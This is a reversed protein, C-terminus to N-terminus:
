LIPQHLREVFCLWAQRRREESVAVQQEMRDHLSLRNDVILLAGTPACLTEGVDDAAEEVRAIIERTRDPVRGFRLSAGEELARGYFRLGRGGPNCGAKIVVRFPHWSGGDSYGFAEGSASLDAVLRKGESTRCLRALIAPASAVRWAGGGAGRPDRQRIWSISLQPRGSRTSFDNHWGIGSRRDFPRWKPASPSPRTLIVPRDPNTGTPVHLQGLLRAAAVIPEADGTDGCFEPEYYYGRARLHARVRQVWRTRITDTRLCIM